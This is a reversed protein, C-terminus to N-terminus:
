VSWACYGSRTTSDTEACYFAKGPKSSARVKKEGHKPCVPTSAPVQPPPGGPASVAVEVGDPVTITLTITKM